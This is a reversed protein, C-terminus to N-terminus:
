DEEVVTVCRERGWRDEVVTKDCQVEFQIDNYIAIACVAVFLGVLFGILVEYYDRMVAGRSQSTAVM